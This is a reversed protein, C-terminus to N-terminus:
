YESPLMITLVRHTCGENAPNESGKKLSPDYYDIKFFVKEGEVEVAGFDHEGWPDNDSCFDDFARVAAVAAVAFAGGKEQIGLTLMVSGNGLGERRFRDNLESIRQNPPLEQRLWILQAANECQHCYANDHVRELEWLGFESNWCAWADKAVRESGCKQCRPVSGIEGEFEDQLTTM